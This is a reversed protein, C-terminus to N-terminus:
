KWNKKSNEMQTKGIVLRLLSLIFLLLHSYEPLNCIKSGPLANFNDLEVIGDCSHDLQIDAEQENHNEHQWLLLNKRHIEWWSPQAGACPNDQRIVSM